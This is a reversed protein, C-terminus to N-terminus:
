NWECETGWIRAKYLRPIIMSPRYSPEPGALGHEVDGDDRGGRSQGGRRGSTCYTPERVVDDDDSLVAEVKM